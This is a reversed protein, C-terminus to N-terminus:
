IRALLENKKADFDEATLYGADRLKGLREIQDFVEDSQSKGPVASPAAGVPATAIPNTAPTAYGPAGEHRLTQTTARTQHHERAATAAENIARVGERFNPIDEVRVVENQGHARRVHLTLTGVSRAKQSLSQAADVDFLEHIPFQQSTTRLGGKEFFLFKSTLRYRGVGMGSMPKGTAEWLTDPDRAPAASQADNAAPLDKIQDTWATGDWYRLKGESPFWGAPTTQESMVV